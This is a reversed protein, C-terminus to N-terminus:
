KRIRDLFLKLDYLVLLAFWVLCFVWFSGMWDSGEGLAFMETCVDCHLSFM